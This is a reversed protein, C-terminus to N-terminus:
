EPSSLKRKREGTSASTELSAQHEVYKQIKYTSAKGLSKVVAAAQDRRNLAVYASTDSLWSVYVGGAILVYIIGTIIVVSGM